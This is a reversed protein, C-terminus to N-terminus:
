LIGKCVSNPRRPTSEQAPTAPDYAVPTELLPSEPRTPGSKCDAETQVVNGDSYHFVLNLLTNAKNFYPM